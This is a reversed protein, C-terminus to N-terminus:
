PTIEVPPDGYVAEIEGEDRKAPDKGSGGAAPDVPPGSFGIVTYRYTTGSVIAHDRWCVPRVPEVFEGLKFDLDDECEISCPPAGAVNVYLDINLRPSRQQYAVPRAGEVVSRFVAVLDPHGFGSVPAEQGQDWCLEVYGPDPGPEAAIGLAFALPEDRAPWPITDALTIELPTPQTLAPESLQGAIDISAVEVLTDQDAPLTHELYGDGGRLGGLDVGLNILYGTTESILIVDPEVLFDNDLDLGLSEESALDNAAPLLALLSLDAEGATGVRLRFGALSEAAPAHWRIVAEGLAPDLTSKIITPRPPPATGHAFACVDPDAVPGVNSDRDLARLRYCFRQAIRTDFEEETVWAGEAISYFGEEVPLFDAENSGRYLRVSMTDPPMGPDPVEYGWRDCPRPFMGTAGGNACWADDGPELDPPCQPGTCCHRFCPLPLSTGPDPCTATPDCFPVISAITPPTEDYVVGRAPASFPSENAPYGCVATDLATVAYWYIRGRNAEEAPEADDCFLEPEPVSCLPIGSPPQLLDDFVTVRYVNYTVTDDIYRSDSDLTVPDSQNPLWSIRIGDSSPDLVETTVGLVQRPTSLDPVCAEAPDSLEGPERLLNRAVVWYCYAEGMVLPPIATNSGDDVFFFDPMDGVEGPGARDQGLASLSIVPEENVKVAGPPPIAPCGPLAGKEIRAIDFGFGTPETLRAVTGPAPGPDWMLYIRMSGFEGSDFRGDGDIDIDGDAPTPFNGRPPMDLDAVRVATLGQPPPLLTDIGAIAWLKGLREIAMGSETDRGWLEYFYRIGAVLDTDLYALGDAIAVGYNTNRVMQYQMQGAPLPDVRLALFATGLTPGLDPVILAELEDRIESPSPFLAEIEIPDTLPEVIALDTFVSETAARKKLLYSTHPSPRDTATWRLLIRPSAAGGGVIATFAFRGGAVGEVAQTSVPGSLASAVIALLLFLL